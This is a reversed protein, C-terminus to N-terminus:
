YMVLGYATLAFIVHALVLQIYFAAFDIKPPNDHTSFMIMWGAVGSLGALIGYLIAYLIGNALMTIFGLYGLYYLVGLLYHVIWGFSKQFFRPMHRAYLDNLLHPESFRKNCILSLIHSCLTMTAVCLATYFLIKM